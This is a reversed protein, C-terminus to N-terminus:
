IHRRAAPIAHCCRRCRTSGSVCCQCLRCQWIDRRGDGDDVRTMSVYNGGISKATNPIGDDLASSGATLKVILASGAMCGANGRSGAADITVHRLRYNGRHAREHEAGPEHLQSAMYIVGRRNGWNEFRSSKRATMCSNSSSVKVGMLRCRHLVKLLAGNVPDAHVTVSPAIKVVEIVGMVMGTKGIPACNDASESVVTSRPRPMRGPSGIVIASVGVPSLVM